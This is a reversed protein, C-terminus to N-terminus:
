HKHVAHSRELYRFAKPRRDLRSQALKELRDLRLLVLLLRPLFGDVLDDRTEVVGHGFIELRGVPKFLEDVGSNGKFQGQGSKVVAVNLSTAM